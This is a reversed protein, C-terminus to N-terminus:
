GKGYVYYIGQGQLWYTSSAPVHSCAEEYRGFHSEAETGEVEDIDLVEDVHRRGLDENHVADEENDGGEM